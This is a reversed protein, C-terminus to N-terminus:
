WDSVAFVKIITSPIVILTASPFSEFILFHPKLSGKESYDSLLMILLLVVRTKAGKVRRIDLSISFFARRTM